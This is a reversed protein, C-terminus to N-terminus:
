FIRYIFLFLIISIILAYLYPEKFYQKIIKYKNHRINRLILCSLVIPLQIILFILFIYTNDFISTFINYDLDFIIIEQIFISFFINLFGTIFFYLIFLLISFINLSKKKFLIYIIIPFTFIILFLALFGIGQHQYGFMIPVVFISLFLFILLIISSFIIISIIKM